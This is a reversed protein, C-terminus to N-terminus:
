KLSRSIEPYSEHLWHAIAAREQPHMRILRNQLRELRRRTVERARFNAGLYRTDHLSTPPAYNLWLTETRCGHHTNAQFDYRHWSALVRDYVPNAYGSLMVSCPLAVVLELLREHDAETYDHTYVRERRRTRPHYPPDLYVLEDGHFSFERLFDEARGHILELGLKQAEAQWTRVVRPDLEIGINRAAPRKNRFVSGGGLHTEIYVRHPPMLNIVHQYCRGKGGPYRMGCLM